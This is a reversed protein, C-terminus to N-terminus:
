CSGSCHHYAKDPARAALALESITALWGNQAAITYGTSKRSWFTLFRAVPMTVDLGRWAVYVGIVTAKRKTTEPYRSITDIFHEFRCADGSTANNQWGHIYLFLPPSDAKRIM